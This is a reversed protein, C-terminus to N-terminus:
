LSSELYDYLTKELRLKGSNLYPMAGLRLFKDKSVLCVKSKQLHKSINYLVIDDNSCHIRSKAFETEEMLEDLNFKENGLCRDFLDAVQRIHKKLEMDHTKQCTDSILRIDSYGVFTSHSKPDLLLVKELIDVNCYMISNADLIAVEM